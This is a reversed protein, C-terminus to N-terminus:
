PTAADGSVKRSPPIRDPDSAAGSRIARDPSVRSATSDSGLRPALNLSPSSFAHVDPDGIEARSRCELGILKRGLALIM